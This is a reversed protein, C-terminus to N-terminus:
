GAVKAPIVNMLVSSPYAAKGGPVYVGARDMATVRQGLVTGDDERYSWSAQQQREHYRRIRDAATELADRLRPEVLANRLREDSLALDSPGAVPRRDFKVTYEILAPDGRQRVDDVIARVSEAIARDASSDDGLLASLEDDFRSDVTDLCRIKM